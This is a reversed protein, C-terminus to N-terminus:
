QALSALTEAARSPTYPGIKERAQAGLRAALNRDQIFKLMHGALEPADFPDFIFGSEGHSLMERAGVYKSCLVPLGFAMAELVAVGWTDALSPSIFVDAIQYYSGLNSYAVPGFQHVIDDLEHERIAARLEEDQEGSGVFLVSFDRIGRDALIRTAEVLYWWGKRPNISGVYIFAPRKLHPLRVESARACLLSLDPVQCPYCVLKKSPMGVVNRLYSIGEDANSVAADAFRGMWRRAFAKIRSSSVSQASCGEWYIVVRCGRFARFFLACLTWASFGSCFIVDPRFAKLERVISLPAWIFGRRSAPLEKRLHVYRMGSLVRVEFTNEFGPAFGPWISTFVATQPCREVFEKFVPQWYYARALSPFLWAVRVSKTASLTVPRDTIDIVTSAM